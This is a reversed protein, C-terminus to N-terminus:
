HVYIRLERAGVNPDTRAAMHMRAPDVGLEGMEDAVAIADSEGARAAKVQDSPDGKASVVTVLDYQADPKRVEAMQVATRLQQAYAVEGGNFVITVLPLTSGPRLAQTLLDPPPKQPKGGFTTQDVLNCGGLCALGALLALIAFRRM